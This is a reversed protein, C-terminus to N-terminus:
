AVFELGSVLWQGKSKALEVRMRYQRPEAQKMKANKVQSTAAVLVEARRDTLSVVGASAVAGTSSVKSEKLASRFAAAQDRLEARFGATARAALVDMQKASTKESVTTLGLVQASAVKVVERRDDSRAGADRVSAVRNVAFVAAAVLALGMLVLGLRQSSIRM